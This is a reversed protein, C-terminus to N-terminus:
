GAIQNTEAFHIIILSMTLFNVNISYMNYLSNKAGEHSPWFWGTGPHNFHSPNGLIVRWIFYGSLVCVLPAVWSISNGAKKAQVSTSPKVTATSKTEAM